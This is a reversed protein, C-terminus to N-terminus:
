YIKLQNRESYEVFVENNCSKKCVTKKKIPEIWKPQIKVNFDFHEVQFSDIKRNKQLNVNTSCVSPKWWEKTQLMSNNKIDFDTKIALERFTDMATTFHHQNKEIKVLDRRIEKVM